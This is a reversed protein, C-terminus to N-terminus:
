TTPLKSSPTFVRQLTSSFGRIKTITNAAYKWCIPIRFRRGTAFRRWAYLGEKVVRRGLKMKHTIEISDDKLQNVLEQITPTFEDDVRYFTYRELLFIKIPTPDKPIYSLLSIPEREPVLKVCESLHSFTLPFPGPQDFQNILLLKPHGPLQTLISFTSYLAKECPVFIDYDNIYDEISADWDVYREERHQREKNFKSLYLVNGDPLSNISSKKFSIWVPYKQQQSYLQRATPDCFEVGLKLSVEEGTSDMYVREIKRLNYFDPVQCEVGEVLRALIYSQYSTLDM